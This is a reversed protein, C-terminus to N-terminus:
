DVKVKKLLRFYILIYILNSRKLKSPSSCKGCTGRHKPLPNICDAPTLADPLFDTEKGAVSLKILGVGVNGYM